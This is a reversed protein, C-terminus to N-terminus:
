LVEVKIKDIEAIFYKIVGYPEFEEMKNLKDALASVLWDRAIAKADAVCAGNPLTFLIAMNELQEVGDGGDDRIKQGATNSTIETLKMSLAGDVITDFVKMYVENLLEKDKGVKKTLKIPEVM